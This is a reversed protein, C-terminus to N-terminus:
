DSVGSLALGEKPSTVQMITLKVVPGLEASIVM